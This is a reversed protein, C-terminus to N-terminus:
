VWCAAHCALDAPALQPKIGALAAEFHAQRVEAASAADERLATMAAERCVAALEAGTYRETAAAIARLDVEPALPISRTHIQLAQLRGEKDPPPVYLVVDFRGPRVLAADLAHPRNTAGMVLVGQALELGDMETLFSSLIRATSEGTQEGEVRKGVLSDLEDFFLISPSTLRARRFTERLLAEGEGVYMSYLQAGSLSIFTAGSATAAARVLTTKSCGPPGHLLVGCPPKLRLRQFADAHRLPWEVAQKLKCKVGELGGIDDWSIPDFEVAAGRAMSPGVQKLAAAFDAATVSRLAPLPEAEPAAAAAAATANGISGAAPAGIAHMAAEVCLAQLDAGTYGHSEQALRQLDVSADLPLRAALLRLIAARAAADPAQVLIERELRGPRRLAPDVANPRSTAGVVLVHGAHQQQHRQQDQPQGAQQPAAAGPVQGQRPNLASVGDLLTLLQGVIRAEHQQAATRHPCLADVEDLFIIVPRGGAADKLAAAFAERLRRESEGTFAGIVCAATVLHLAAGCERALAHVAASWHQRNSLM